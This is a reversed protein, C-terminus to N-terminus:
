RQAPTFELHLETLARLTYTPQYDFRRDGPSGHEAANLEIRAMRDLLREISVRAEARALMAGPCTHVGRGFAVHDRLNPRDLRFEHPDDFKRPDRNIAGPCVMVTTGAPIAVGGLTTTKRTLRFDSKVPSEMRLAEEIFNPIRGRDDRLQAVLDPREALLLLSWSLLVATAGRAATFLLTASRAVEAVEPTSGDPYRAKALRTLLDPRPERRRQSLYQGFKDDLWELSNHQVPSQDMAGVAVSPHPTEFTDRDGAPIGFVEAIVTTSFPKAYDSVFECRGAEIFRDIQEDAIRRLLKENAQIRSPTLLRSLLSRARAHEPPDMTTLYENMPMRARYQEIQETIDDGAPEFPLPPFPGGVAVISSYTEGDRYVVCGEQHGTVAVVGHRSLKVVPGTSRLHDFYPHPNPLLAEDTFFDISDLDDPLSQLPCCEVSTIM